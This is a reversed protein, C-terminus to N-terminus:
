LFFKFMLALMLSIFCAWGSFLWRWIVARPIFGVGRVLGSSMTWLLVMVLKHDVAGSSNVMILPYITGALMIGIAVALFPLQIEVGDDDSSQSSNM